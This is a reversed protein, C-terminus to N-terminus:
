NNKGYPDRLFDALIDIIKELKDSHLQTLGGAIRKNLKGDASPPREMASPWRRVRRLTGNGRIRYLALIKGKRDRLAVYQKINFTEHASLSPDPFLTPKESRVCAHLYSYYARTLLDNM